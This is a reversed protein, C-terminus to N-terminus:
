PLLPFGRHSHGDRVALPLLVELRIVTLRVQSSQMSVYRFRIQHAGLRKLGRARKWKREPRRNAYSLGPASPSSRINGLGSDPKRQLFSLAM